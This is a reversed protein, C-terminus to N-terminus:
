ERGHSGGSVNPRDIAFISQTVGNCRSSGPAGLAAAAERPLRAHGELAEDSVRVAARSPPPAASTPPGAARRTSCASRRRSRRRAAPRGAVPALAIAEDCARTRRRRGPQGAGLARGRGRRDARRHAAPGPRPARRGPPGPRAHVIAPSWGASCRPIASGAGSAGRDVFDCAMALGAGGAFADGNLAAITPKRLTHVQQILDAIAQVDAIALTEAEADHRSAEAEKLDM